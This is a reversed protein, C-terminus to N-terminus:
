GSDEDRVDLRQNRVRVGGHLHPQQTVLAVEGGRPLANVAASVVRGREVERPAQLPLVAHGLCDLQVAHSALERM